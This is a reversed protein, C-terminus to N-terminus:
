YVGITRRGNATVISGIGFSSLANPIVLYISGIPPRYDVNIWPPYWHERPTGKEENPRNRRLKELMELTSFHSFLYSVARTGSKEDNTLSSSASAHSYPRLRTVMRQRSGTRICKLVQYELHNARRLANSFCAAMMSLITM